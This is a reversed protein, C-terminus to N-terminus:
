FPAWQLGLLTALNKAASETTTECILYRGGYFKASDESLKQTVGKIEVESILAGCTREWKARGRFSPAGDVTIAVPPHGTGWIWLKVNAGQALAELEQPSPAWASEMVQSGDELLHDKIPLSLCDGEWDQPKGLVRTAGEIRAILM